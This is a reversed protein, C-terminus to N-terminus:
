FTSSHERLEQISPFNLHIKLSSKDPSSSKMEIHLNTM